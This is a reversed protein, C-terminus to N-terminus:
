NKRARGLLKVNLRCWEDSTSKPNTSYNVSTCRSTVSPPIPHYDFSENSSRIRQSRIPVFTQDRGTVSDNLSSGVVSVYVDSQPTIPKIASNPTYIKLPTLSEASELIDPPAFTHAPTFPISGYNHSVGAALLRKVCRYRDYVPRMLIRDNRETPRGYTSEFNLLMRQMLLKEAELEAFTMDILRESRNAAARKEALKQVLDNYAGELNESKKTEQSVQIPYRYQPSGKSEMPYIVTDDNDRNSSREIDRETKGSSSNGIPRWRESHCQSSAFDFVELAKLLIGRVSYM